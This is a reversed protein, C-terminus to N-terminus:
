RGIANLRRQLAAFSDAMVAMFQKRDAPTWWPLAWRARRTLEESAPEAAILRLLRVREARVEGAVAACGGARNVLRWLDTYRSPPVDTLTPVEDATAANQWDQDLPGFALQALWLQRRRDCPQLAGGVRDLFVGQVITNFSGNRAIRVRYRAPGCVVFQPYVGGWFDRVRARALIPAAGAKALDEAYPKVEVLYDRWRNAGEHGDKNFFYLALRHPGATVTLDLWIDPGEHTMGYTEGHDDWDSQRRYGLIPSYLTKPNDTRLWQVWYRLSDQDDHHPGMAAHILNWIDNGFWDDLPSKQACLVATARGYRGVWDGQTQWDEGLYAAAGPALPADQASLRKVMAAIAKADPPAAPTPLPPRAAPPPVPKPTDKANLGSATLGGAAWGMAMAGDPLEALSALDDRTGDRQDTWLRKGGAADFVEVGARRHGLWLAGRRDLRVRTCYDEALTGEADPKWEKPPGGFRGRVEDAWQHGRAWAWHQAGDGSRGLGYPTAVYIAGDPALAIDNILASPLESSHTVGARLQPRIPGSVWRWTAFEDAPRGIALGNCATGVYLADAADCALATVQNSPLGEAITFDRWTDHRGDYCCLGENSGIWVRGATDAALATVHEGLPGSLRDYCRWSQGNFVSVGHNLHGVWIRGQADCALAYANDDGLGDRTTFQRWAGSAPDRRWVGHDETGVWLGGAHDQALAMVFAGQRASDWSVDAATAATLTGLMGWVM